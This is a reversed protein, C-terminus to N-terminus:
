TGPKAGKADQRNSVPPAGPEGVPGSAGAQREPFALPEKVVKPDLRAATESDVQAREHDGRAKYIAARLAYAWAYNPSLQISREVDALGRDPDGKECFARGRLAYGEADRGDLRIAQTFDAIALDLEGKGAYFAGRTKCSEADTPRPAWDGEGLFMTAYDSLSAEFVEQAASEGYDARDAKRLFELFKDRHDQLINRVMMEALSYSLRQGEDPRDFGESSWFAQLGHGKWYRRHREALERDLRLRSSGRVADEMLQAVGENLWGPLPLHHLYAHTLEHVISGELNMMGSPNLALHYGDHLFVGGSGGFEGEPYYHSIYRYYTDDDDFALIVDQCQAPPSAVGELSTLIAERASEAFELLRDAENEPQASLLFFHESSFIHYGPGLTEKLRELWQLTVDGWAEQRDEEPVREELDREILDWNPRPFGHTVEFAGELQGLDVRM